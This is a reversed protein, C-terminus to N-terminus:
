LRLCLLVLARRPRYHASAGLFTGPPLVAAGRVSGDELGAADEARLDVSCAQQCQTAVVPAAAPLRSLADHPAGSGVRASVTELALVVQPTAPCVAGKRACYAHTVALLFQSHQLPLHDALCNLSPVSLSLM